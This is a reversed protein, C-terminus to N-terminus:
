GDAMKTEYHCETYENACSYSNGFKIKIEIRKCLRYYFHLQFNEQQHEDETGTKQVEINSFLM